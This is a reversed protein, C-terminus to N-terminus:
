RRAAARQWPSGRRPRDAGRRRQEQAAPVAMSGLALGVAFCAYVGLLARSSLRHEFGPTLREPTMRYDVFCAVAAATAAGALAPLPRKSNPRTGWARAHWVGWWISAAHHILFGALTHRASAGDERLAAEDWIWHSIANVPAAPHHGCERHGALALFAASLVSAASGSIAGEFLAPKWSKM